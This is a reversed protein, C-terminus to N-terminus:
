RKQYQLVNIGDKEVCCLGINRAPAAPADPATNRSVRYPHMLRCRREATRIWVSLLGSIVWKDTSVIVSVGYRGKAIAAGIAAKVV